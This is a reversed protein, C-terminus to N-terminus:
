TAAGVENLRISRPEVNPVPSETHLSAITLQMASIIFEFALPHLINM